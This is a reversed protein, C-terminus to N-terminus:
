KIREPSPEAIDAFTSRQSVVSSSSSFLSWILIFCLGMVAVATMKVCFGYSRKAQRGFRAIAM